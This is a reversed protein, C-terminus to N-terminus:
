KKIVVRVTQKYESGIYQLFYVGPSLAESPRILQNNATVPMIVLQRGLTNSLRIKDGESPNFNMSFSIVDGAGPNPYVVLGKSGELRASKIGFYEFSNDIDLAKLRYYNYGILPNKDEYSYKSLVDYINRGQGPVEGIDDFELGADSRQVVFTSFDEEMTTAWTLEITTEKVLLEFYQLTVPLVTNGCAGSGATCGAGNGTCSCSGASISGPPGQISSNGGGLNIAGGVIMAPVATTGTTNLHSNNGGVIDGKVELTGSGTLNIDGGNAMVISGYVIMTGTVTLNLINNVILDGYIYLNGAITLNGANQFTISKKTTAGPPNYLTSSGVTLTGTASVSVDTNNNIQTINGIVFSGGSVNVDAGITVDTGTGSPVSGASWNTGTNWNTDTTGNFTQATLELSLAVFFVCILIKTNM